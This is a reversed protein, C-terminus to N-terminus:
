IIYKYPGNGGVHTSTKDCEVRINGRKGHVLWNFRGNEGYVTFTNKELNVESASFVKVKGDYIHTIQVTADNVDKCLAGFYEPLHIEVCEGNVIEGKGRYYIGAEPGELCAHVLYKNKPDVPHDIVFTKASYYIEHNTFDYHLISGGTNGSVGRVPRVYFSDPQQSNLAEISYANLIITGSHQNTEGARLGISISGGSQNTSGSNTGIAISSQGQGTAGANNGIAISNLGQNSEGANTGIAVSSFGQNFYGAFAGVAITNNNQGGLQLTGSNYDYDYGQGAGLGIAIANYGQDFAGANDGIAIADEGQGGTAGGGTIGTVGRLTLYSYYGGGAGVGIAIAADDQRIAGTFLGISISGAGINGTDGANCQGAQYGIAISGESQSYQGAQNGIAIASFIPTTGSDQTELAIGQGTYGAQYGIAISGYTQNYYGSQNGIAIASGTPGTPGTLGTTNNGQGTAGANYGISISCPGSPGGDIKITSDLKLEGTSPNISFPSLTSINLQTSSAGTVFTPYFVANASTDIITVAGSGSPGTPGTVGTGTPGTAGTAGLGTAGTAGTGTPGTAGLGSQGTPGTAGTGTPGMAGTVGTDGKAGVPGQIGSPGTPGWITSSKIASWPGSWPGTQGGSSYIARIRFYYQTVPALGVVQFSTYSSPINNAAIIPPGQIPPVTNGSCDVWINSCANYDCNTQQLQYYSVSGTAQSWTITASTTSM